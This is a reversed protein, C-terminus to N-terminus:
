SELVFRAGEDNLMEFPDICRIGLGRCVDPLKVSRRSQPASVEHTVLTWETVMAHAVLYYDSASLFEAVAAETYHRNRVWQSIQDGSGGRGGCSGIPSLVGSRARGGM